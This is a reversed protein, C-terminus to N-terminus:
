IQVGSAGGKSILSGIWCEFDTGKTSQGCGEESCTELGSDLM